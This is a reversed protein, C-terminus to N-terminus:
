VSNELCQLPWACVEPCLWVAGIAGMDVAQAQRCSSIPVQM